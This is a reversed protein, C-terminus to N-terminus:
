VLIKTFKTRINAESRSSLPTRKPVLLVDGYTLGLKMKEM